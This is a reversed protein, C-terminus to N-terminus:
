IGNVGKKTIWVDVDENLPKQKKAKKDKQKHRAAGIHDGCHVQSM